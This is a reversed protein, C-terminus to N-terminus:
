IGNSYFLFDDAYTTMGEHFYIVNNEQMYRTHKCKPDHFLTNIYGHM